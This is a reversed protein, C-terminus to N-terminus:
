GNRHVSHCQTCKQGVVSRLKDYEDFSKGDVAKGMGTAADRMETAWGVFDEYEAYGFDEDMFVQSIAAQVAVERKALEGKETFGSEGGTENQLWLGGREMRKMLFGFDAFDVFGAEPESEPLGPPDNNDLIDCIKLFADNVSDYSKKVGATSSSTIEVIEYSLDRIFHAKDKWSIDGEHRRGLDALFCLTSAFVPLELTTRKYAGFNTMRSNLDNRISKVEDKIQEATILDGWSVDGGSREEAPPEPGTEPESVAGTAPPTGGGTTMAVAPTGITGQNSAVELPNDFYVDLPIDGVMKRGDDQKTSSKNGTAKKTTRSSSSKTSGADSTAKEADGGGGCGVVAPLVTMVSLILLQRLLNRGSHGVM